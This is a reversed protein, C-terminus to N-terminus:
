GAHGPKIGSSGIFGHWNCPGHIQISPTLILDDLNTGSAKWRVPAGKMNSGIGPPLDCGEFFVQISHGDKEFCHPCLFQVGDAEVLAEVPHFASVQFGGWQITGDPLTRGHGPGAEVFHHKILKGELQRLPYQM